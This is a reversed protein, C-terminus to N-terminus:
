ILQYVETVGTESGETEQSEDSVNQKKELTM